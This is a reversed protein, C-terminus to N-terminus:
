LAGLEFKLNKQNADDSPCLRSAEQFAKKADDKKNKLLYYEGTYFNAECGQYPLDTEKGIKSKAYVEDVTAQDLFLRALPSPWDGNIYPAVDHEFEERGNQNTRGRALYLSILLYPATDAKDGPKDKIYDHVLNPCHQLVAQTDVAFNPCIFTGTYITSVVSAGFKVLPAVIFILCATILAGKRKANLASEMSRRVVLVSASLTPNSGVTPPQGVVTKSVAANSREAV